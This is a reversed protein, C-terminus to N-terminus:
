ILTATNVYDCLCENSSRAQIITLSQTIVLLLPNEADRPTNHIEHQTSRTTMVHYGPFLNKSFSNQEAITKNPSNTPFCYHYTHGDAFVNITM